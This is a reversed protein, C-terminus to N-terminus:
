DATFTESSQALWARRREALIRRRYPLFDTSEFIHRRVLEAHAELGSELIFRGHRLIEGLLPEGARALDVLDVPRGTVESVATVIQCITAPALPESALVALDIDSGAGAEGRAFSGFLIAIRLDPFGVLAERIPTAPDM